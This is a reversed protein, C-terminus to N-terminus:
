FTEMISPSLAAEVSSKELIYKKEGKRHIFCSDFLVKIEAEPSCYLCAFVSGPMANLESSAKPCRHCRARADLCSDKLRPFEVFYPLEHRFGLCLNNRNLEQERNRETAGM